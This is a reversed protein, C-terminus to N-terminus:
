PGSRRDLNHGSYAEDWSWFSKSILRRLNSSGASCSTISTTAEELVLFATAKLGAAAKKRQWFHGLVLLYTAVGLVGTDNGIPM